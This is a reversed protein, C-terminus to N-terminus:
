ALGRESRGHTRAAAAASPSSETQRASAPQCEPPATAHPSSSLGLGSSSGGGGGAAPTHPSCGATSVGGGSASAFSGSNNISLPPPADLAAPPMPVDDTTLSQGVVAACARPSLLPHKAATAAAAADAPGALTGRLASFSGSSTIFAFDDLSASYNSVLQAHKARQAIRLQLLPFCAPLCAPLGACSRQDAHLSCCLALLTPTHTHLPRECIRGQGCRKRRM